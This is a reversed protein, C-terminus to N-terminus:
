STLQREALPYTCARDEALDTLLGEAWSVADAIVADITAKDYDWERVVKSTLGMGQTM